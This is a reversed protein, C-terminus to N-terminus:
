KERSFLYKIFEKYVLSDKYNNDNTLNDIISNCGSELYELRKKAQEIGILSVYTIKGNKKDSDVSKGITEEDSEIELLDDIIQYAEGIFVGLREMNM